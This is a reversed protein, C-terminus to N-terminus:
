AIGARDFLWDLREVTLLCCGSDLRQVRCAVPAGVDLLRKTRNWAEPFVVIRFDAENWVVTIHAMEQGPNRGKKTVTPRIATLQGAIIFETKPAFANVEIPDRLGCGDIVKLYRHLPDVTVYTGVLEKEIEYVVKSDTFDPREVAYKKALRV